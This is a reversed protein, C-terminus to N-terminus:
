MIITSSSVATLSGDVFKATVLISVKTGSIIPNGSIIFVVPIEQGPILPLSSLDLTIVNNSLAGYNSPVLLKITNLNTGIISINIKDIAKTGLNRIAISISANRNDIANASLIMLSIKQQQTTSSMFNPIFMYLMVGIAITIAIGITIALLESLGYRFLKSKDM